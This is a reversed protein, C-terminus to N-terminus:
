FFIHEIDRNWNITFFNIPLLIMFVFVHNFLSFLRMDRRYKISLSLFVCTIITPTPEILLHQTIIINQNTFRSILTVIRFVLRFAVFNPCVSEAQYFLVLLSHRSLVLLSHGPHPPSLVANKSLTTHFILADVYIYSFADCFEYWIFLWKRWENIRNEEDVILAFIWAATSLIQFHFVFVCYLM